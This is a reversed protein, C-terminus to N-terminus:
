LTHHNVYDLLFPKKSLDTEGVTIFVLNATAMLTDTYLKGDRKYLFTSVEVLLSKREGFRATAKILLEDGAYAPALFKFDALHTVSGKIRPNILEHGCESILGSCAHSSALDIASMFAGGFIILVTHNCDKPFVYFKDSHTFEKM